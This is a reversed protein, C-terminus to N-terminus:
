LIEIMIVNNEQGLVIRGYAILFRCVSLHILVSSFCGGWKLLSKMVVARNRKGGYRYVHTNIDHM